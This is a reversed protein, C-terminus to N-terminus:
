PLTARTTQSFWEIALMLSCAAMESIGIVDLFMFSSLLEFILDEKGTKVRYPMKSKSLEVM